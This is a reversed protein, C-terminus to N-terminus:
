EVTVSKALNRPFDVDFGKSVAMHYSLLQLPIINLLGQLCDVTRPVRIVRHVKSDLSTDTDNAIIIPAGKRATVQELASRTKAYLSDQTMILIVPMSEDILALPGHKLEGALIGESHMYTLEKIKLAAELCTAHQYGRGMILLSREKALTQQALAQFEKDHLLIQKIQGPLEHLGDIISNRRGTMSLRDESLQIAMMVLAIYQSTYAKTSAVGIEPGANVHIGCHSERSITSGVVNVVGVNLAGRELCYRMALITDATEGSQSVFICVDDRFIPTKRDLFDSALEVSVPIETLEEFISRTALCSHYSTGCAVFVIRRCRRIVHLYAKLGGLMITHTDFNVRGRMTNVVSEPQEYIEKQMFHDFQGKMIAALEIELTEIARIASVGDDRRLRHIHFEGEAIHAIDDDELYLVRKTHEVIASADSAIFFEIPQPMGDDSLFARSQSRILGKAGSAAAPVLLGNPNAPIEPIDSETPAFEVDVFDIKLKKETKVGILVPSGRRCIVVEDPYHVSKFVFAFAGELEMIVSKILSTFSVQKGQQSDYLYKALVAAVETDTDTRFVYGRKELVLRLEKYNTIIGNHVVTFDKLADSQHPHCNLISPVGHTAWRTHAISTQSLFVKNMDVKSEYCHKRLVQVKGVGKFIMPEGPNDGDVELGASDYGRYEMRQLGNLLIELVSRRDKECLYSAYGFIGCM